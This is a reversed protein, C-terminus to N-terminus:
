LSQNLQLYFQQQYKRGLILDAELGQVVVKCGLTLEDVRVLVAELLVFFM